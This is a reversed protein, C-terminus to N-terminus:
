KLSIEVQKYRGDGVSSTKVKADDQLYKHILRRENANLSKTLSSEGSEIVQARILDAVKNLKKILEKDDGDRRKDNGGQRRSAAPDKQDKSGPCRVNIKLNKHLVVRSQLYTKIIQDFANLLEFKNDSFMKEDKGSFSVNLTTPKFSVKVYVDLTSKKCIGILLPLLLKKYFPKVFFKYKTKRAGFIIYKKSGEELVEYGLLSEDEIRLFSMAEASLSKVGHGVLEKFRRDVRPKMPENNTPMSKERPERPKYERPKIERTKRDPRKDERKRKYDNGSDRSDSVRLTKRDLYPKKCIDTAFDNDELDMKEIKAEILDYIPDLYECDEFACFSIAQGEEGARGTRGIRHVYNAAEQPLDFNIVLNVNKIDLGRAAVDTCVLVTIEKSRFDAMLKTRKNQPLRGSIPKAKFGMLILWEAVAHTQMQTNCFVIAYANEKKRLLSVLLPFKEKAEVMALKHDIHDVLLSDHNLVLEEPDSHFKYATRLVDQNSTASLMILQRSKSAKGLIYEIEKKFGMDFLRDAEDFVVGQCHELSVVKQKILDAFRGPTAVLVHVGNNILEKQRDISEGGIVCCSEIQLKKGFQQFVKYTQQAL